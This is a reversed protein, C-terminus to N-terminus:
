GELCIPDCHNRIFRRMQAPTMNAQELENQWKSLISNWKWTVGDVVIEVPFM